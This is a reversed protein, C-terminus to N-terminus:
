KLLENLEDKDDLVSQGQRFAEITKYNMYEGPQVALIDAVIEYLHVEDKTQKWKKTFLFKWFENEAVDGYGLMKFEELKSTIALGVQEKYQEYKHRHQM